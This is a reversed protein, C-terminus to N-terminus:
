GSLNLPFLEVLNFASRRNVTIVQLLVNYTLGKTVGHPSLFYTNCLGNCLQRSTPFYEYIAFKILNAAM